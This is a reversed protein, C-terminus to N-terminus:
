REDGESPRADRGLAARYAAAAKFYELLADLRLAQASALDSERVNIRLLDSRGLEFARREAQVMREALAVSRETEEIQVFSTELASLADALEYLVRDRAFEGEIRLREM